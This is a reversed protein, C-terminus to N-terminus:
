PSIQHQDSKPNLPNFIHWDCMSYLYERVARMLMDTVILSM